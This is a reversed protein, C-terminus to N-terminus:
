MAPYSRRVMGQRQASFVLPRDPVARSAGPLTAKELFALEDDWMKSFSSFSGVFDVVSV